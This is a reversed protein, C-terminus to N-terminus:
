NNLCKNHSRVYTKVITTLLKDSADSITSTPVHKAADDEIKKRLKKPIKELSM